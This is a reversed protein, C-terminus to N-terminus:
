KKALAEEINAVNFSFGSKLLKEPVARQSVLLLGDAKEGFVLRLFWAPVPPGVWRHVAQALAKTFVKNSVPVPATFNIPGALQDTVLVHHIGRVLDDMHIWSMYQSGSGLRGGLGAKFLPLLKALAGGDKSLVMGFRTHCVRADQLDMSASEWDSCVDALFGEGKVSDETLIESGRDGYYGVASASVFVKPVLDNEILYHALNQTTIVRSDYIKKKHSATWRKEIINEGALHILADAKMSPMEGRALPMMDFGLNSLYQVLHSGIFGHSGTIYIKM